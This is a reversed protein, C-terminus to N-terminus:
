PQNTGSSSDSSNNRSRGVRLGVTTGHKRRKAIIHKCRTIGNAIHGEVTKESIQMEHAIERQTYGYVKKLVFARRCQLPLERVAACFMAFDEYACVQELTDQAASLNAEQEANEIDDIPDVLRFGARRVHDLALNRATKLMFAKPSRIEKAVSAQCVRVYTEQVIDEVEGPSVISTVARALGSRISLYLNALRDDVSMERLAEFPM